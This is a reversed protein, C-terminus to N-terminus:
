ERSMSRGTAQRDLYAIVVFLVLAFASTALMRASLGHAMQLQTEVAKAAQGDTIFRSLDLTFLGTMLPMLAIVMGYASAIGGFLACASVARLKMGLDLARFTATPSLRSAAARLRRAEFARRKTDRV